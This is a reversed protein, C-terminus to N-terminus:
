SIMQLMEPALIAYRHMANYVGNPYISSYVFRNVCIMRSAHWQLLMTTKEDELGTGNLMM